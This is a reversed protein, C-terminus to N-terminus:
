RGYHGRSLSSDFYDSMVRQLWSWSSFFLSPLPCATVLPVLWQSVLAGGSVKQVNVRLQRTLRPNRSRM